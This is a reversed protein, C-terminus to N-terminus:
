SEMNLGTGVGLLVLKIGQGVLLRLVDDEGTDIGARRVPWDTAFQFATALAHRKLTQDANPKPKKM